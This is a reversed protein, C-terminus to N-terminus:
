TFRVKLMRVYAITIALIILFILVSAASGMGLLQYDVLQQRAYATMSITSEAYGNMVYVVDFVRLADVSRLVMAILIAPKLLPLTIRSFRAWVGAGDVEAAEYIEAPITQLGALLLLTMFPTTKWVEIIIITVLATDPNGIWALGHEIVGARRLLDNVVGFQDNFMWSWMQASVVGPIVWPLLISTRVLGRGPFRANILMALLLGFVLELGVSSVTFMMTKAVANWWRTDQLIGLGVGRPTTYWYNAFGVWRPEAVDGLNANTFSLIITEVLPYGATCLLVVIAPALLLIGHRTPRSINWASRRRSVRPTQGPVALASGNSRTSSLPAVM